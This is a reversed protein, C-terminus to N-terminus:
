KVASLITQVLLDDCTGEGPNTGCGGVTKGDISMGLPLQQDAPNTLQDAPLDLCVIKVTIHPHTTSFNEALKIIQNLPAVNHETPTDMTYGIAVVNAGTPNGLIEDSQPAYTAPDVEKPTFPPQIHSTPIPPLNKASYPASPKAKAADAAQQAARQEIEDATPNVISQFYNLGGVALLLLAILVFYTIGNKRQM